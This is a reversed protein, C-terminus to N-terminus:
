NSTVPLSITASVSSSIQTINEDVFGNIDLISIISLCEAAQPAGHTTSCLTQNAALSLLSKGDHIGKWFQSLADTPGPQVSGDWLTLNKDLPVHTSCDTPIFRVEGALSIQDIWSRISSDKQLESGCVNEDTKNSKTCDSGYTRTGCVERLIPVFALFGCEGAALPKSM